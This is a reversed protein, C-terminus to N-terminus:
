ATRRRSHGVPEQATPEIDCQQATAPPIVFGRVRWGVGQHGAAVSTMREPHHWQPRKSAVMQTSREDQHGHLPDIGSPNDGISAPLCSCSCLLSDCSGAGDVPLSRCERVTCIPSASSSENTVM